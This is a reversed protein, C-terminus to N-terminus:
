LTADQMCLLKIYIYLYINTREPLHSCIIRGVEDVAINETKIFFLTNYMSSEVVAHNHLSTSLIGTNVM